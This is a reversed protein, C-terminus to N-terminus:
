RAAAACAPCTGTLELTHEPDTFGHAAATAAAWAELDPATVEVTRGCTRCTLHHHHGRGCLRYLAEGSRHEPRLVDAAGDEALAGLTRYVTALGIADGEARLWDHLERASAFGSHAALARMVASRQRTVRVQRAGQGTM